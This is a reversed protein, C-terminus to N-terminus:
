CFNRKKGCYMACLIIEEQKQKKTFGVRYYVDLFKKQRYVSYLKM